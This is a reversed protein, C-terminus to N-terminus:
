FKTGIQIQHNRLTTWRDDRWLQSETSRRKLPKPLTQWAIVDYLPDLSVPRCFVIEKDDDYFGLFGIGVLEGDTILVIKGKKPLRKECRIWRM